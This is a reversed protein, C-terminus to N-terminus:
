FGAHKIGTLLNPNATEVKVAHKCYCAKENEKWTAMRAWMNPRSKLSVYRQNYTDACYDACMKLNGNNMNFKTIEHGPVHGAYTDSYSRAPDLPDRTLFVSIMDGREAVGWTSCAPYTHDWHYHSCKPDDLCKKACQDESQIIVGDDAFRRSGMLTMGAERYFAARNGTDLQVDQCRMMEPNSYLACLPEGAKICASGDGYPAWGSPCETYVGSATNEVTVFFKPDDCRPLEPNGWLTCQKGDKTCASGDGYPSFGNPCEDWGITPDVGGPGFYRPQTDSRIYPSEDANYSFPLFRQGGATLCKSPTEANDVNVWNPAEFKQCQGHDGWAWKYGGKRTVCEGTEAAVGFICGNPNASDPVIDWKPVNHMEEYDLRPTVWVRPIEWTPDYGLGLGPDYIENDLGAEKRADDLSKGYMYLAAGAALVTGAAVRLM